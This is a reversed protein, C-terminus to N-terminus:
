VIRRGGCRKRKRPTHTLGKADSHRMIRLAAVKVLSEKYTADCGLHRPSQHRQEIRIHRGARKFTESQGRYSRCRVENAVTSKLGRYVQNSEQNYRGFHGVQSEPNAPPPLPWQDQFVFASPLTLTYTRCAVECSISPFGAANYYKSASHLDSKVYLIYMLRRVIALEEPKVCTM